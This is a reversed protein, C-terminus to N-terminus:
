KVLYACILALEYIYSVNSSIYLNNLSKEKFFPKNKQSLFELIKKPIRSNRPSLYGRVGM